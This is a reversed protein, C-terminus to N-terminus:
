QATALWDISTRNTAHLIARLTAATQEDSTTELDDVIDELSVVFDDFIRTVEVATKPNQSISSLAKELRAFLKQEEANMWEVGEWVSSFGSEYDTGTGLM